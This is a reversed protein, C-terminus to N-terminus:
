IERAGAYRETTEALFERVVGLVFAIQGCNGAVVPLIGRRRLPSIAIHVFALALRASHRLGPSRQGDFVGRLELRRATRGKCYQRKLYGSFRLREPEQLETARAETIWGFTAGEQRLQHFFYTDEGGSNLADDFSLGCSELTDLRLLTNGSFGYGEYPGDSTATPPARFLTPDAAWAPVSGPLSVEVPGLLVDAPQSRIGAIFADLWGALPLQDDDFFLVFPMSRARAFALVHNRVDAVGRADVLQYCWGCTALQVEVQPLANNLFVVLEVECEGADVAAIQRWVSSVCEFLTSRGVSPIAVLLRDKDSM